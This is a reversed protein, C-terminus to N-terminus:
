TGRKVPIHFSRLIGLLREADAEPGRGLYFTRSGALLIVWIPASEDASRRTEIRVGALGTSIARGRLPEVECVEHEFDLLARGHRRKRRVVYVVASTCGIVWTTLVALLIPPAAGTIILAGIILTLVAAFLTIRRVAGEIIPCDSSAVLKMSEMAVTTEASSLLRRGNAMVEAHVADFSARALVGSM